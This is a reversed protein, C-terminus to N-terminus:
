RRSRRLAVAVGAVLSLSAPEPIVSPPAFASAPTLSVYDIQAVAGSLGGVTTDFNFLAQVAISTNAGSNFSVHGFVGGAANPSSGPVLAVNAIFSQDIPLGPIRAEVGATDFNANTSYNWLYGSLVYDTGATVPVVQEWISRKVTSAGDFTAASNGHVAPTLNPGIPAAVGPTGGVNTWFDPTGASLVEFGRNQVTTNDTVETGAQYQDLPLLTGNNGYALSSAAVSVILALAKTKM